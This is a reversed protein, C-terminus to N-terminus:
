ATAGVNQSRERLIKGDQTNGFEPAGRAGELSRDDGM